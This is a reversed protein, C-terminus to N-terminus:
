KKLQTLKNQISKRSLQKEKGSKDMWIVEKSNVECLIEFVDYLRRGETLSESKLTKMVNHISTIDHQILRKLLEEIPSINDEIIFSTGKVRDALKANQAIVQEIESRKVRLDSRQVSLYQKTYEDNSFDQKSLNEANHSEEFAYSQREFSDLAGVLPQIDYTNYNTTFRYELFDKNPYSLSHPKEDRWNQVGERQILEFSDQDANELNRSLLLALSNSAKIIGKYDFCGIISYKDNGDLETFGYISELSVWAYLELRDQNLYDILDFKTFGYHNEVEEVFLYERNLQM